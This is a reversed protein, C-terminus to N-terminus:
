TGRGGGEAVRRGGGARRQGNGAWVGVIVGTDLQGGGEDDESVSARERLVEYVRVGVQVVECRGGEWECWARGTGSERAGRWERESRAVREQEAGSESVVGPECRWGARVAGAKKGEAESAGSSM